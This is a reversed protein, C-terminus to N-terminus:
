FVDLENADHHILLRHPLLGVGAVSVAKTLRGLNTKGDWPQTLICRKVRHGRMRASRLMCLSDTTRMFPLYEHINLWTQPPLPAPLMLCTCDALHLLPRFQQLWVNLTDMAHKHIPGQNHWTVPLSTPHSAVGM